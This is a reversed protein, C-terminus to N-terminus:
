GMTKRSALSANRLPLGFSRVILWAAAITYIPALPLFFRPLAFGVSTALVYLGVWALL